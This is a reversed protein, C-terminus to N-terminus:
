LHISLSLSSQWIFSCRDLPSLNFRGVKPVFGEEEASAPRRCFALYVQPCCFKKSWEKWKLREKQCILFIAKTYNWQNTYCSISNGVFFVLFIVLAFLCFVFSLNKCNLVNNQFVELNKYFFIALIKRQKTWTGLKQHPIAWLLRLLPCLSNNLRNSLIAIEGRM